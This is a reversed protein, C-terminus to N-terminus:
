DHHYAEGRIITCARYLQEVAILRVMQHPFTLRSLSLSEDARRYVQEAFGYPGGIVMVLRRATAQQRELWTALERSTFEKGREDFLVVTDQQTLSRIIQEGEHERQQEGSMGRTNKLGPVVSIGFPMYHGIRGAYDAVAAELSKDTTRGVMMLVTKM